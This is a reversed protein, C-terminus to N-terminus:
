FSIHVHHFLWWCIDFIKWLGLPLLVLFGIALTEIGEGFNSGMM